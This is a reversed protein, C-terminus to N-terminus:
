GIDEVWGRGGRDELEGGGEEKPGGVDEYVVGEELEGGGGEEEYGIGM